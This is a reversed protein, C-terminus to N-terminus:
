IRDVTYLTSCGQLDYRGGSVTTFRLVFRGPSSFASVTVTTVGAPVEASTSEGRFISGASQENVAIDAGLALFLIDNTRTVSFRAMGEPIPADAVPAPLTRGGGSTCGTLLIVVL